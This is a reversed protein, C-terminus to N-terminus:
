QRNYNNHINEIHSYIDNIENSMNVETIYDDNIERYMSTIIYHLYKSLCEFYEKSTNSYSDSNKTTKLDQLYEKIKKLNDYCINYTKPTYKKLYELQDIFHQMQSNCDIINNKLQHLFENRDSANNKDRYNIFIDDSIKNITQIINLLYLNVMNIKENKELKKSQEDNKEELRKNIRHSYIMAIIPAIFSLIATLIPIGISTMIPTETLSKLTYDNLGINTIDTYNTIFNTIFNTITIYNTM